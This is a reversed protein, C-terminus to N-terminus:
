RRKPRCQRPSRTFNGDSALAVNGKMVDAFTAGNLRYRTMSTRFGMICFPCKTWALYERLDENPSLTTSNNYVYSNLGRWEWFDNEVLGDKGPKRFRYAKFGYLLINYEDRTLKVPAASFDFLGEKAFHAITAKPMVRNLRLSTMNPDLPSCRKDIWKEFPFSQIHGYGRCHPCANRYLNFAFEAPAIGDVLRAKLSFLRTGLYSFTGAARRQNEAPVAVVGGGKVFAEDFSSARVLMKWPDDRHVIESHRHEAMVAAVVSAPVREYRELYSVFPNFFYTMGPDIAQEMERRSRFLRFHPDNIDLHFHAAFQTEWAFNKQDLYFPHLLAFRKAEGTREAISAPTPGASDPLARRHALTGAAEFVEAHDLSPFTREGWYGATITQQTKEGPARGLDIVYDCRYILAPNHEILVVTCNGLYTEFAEHLRLVAQDDLGRSPEDLIVTAQKDTLAASHSLIFRALKLRQLEGGSLTATARGLTIHSLSLADFIERVKSMFGLGGSTDIRAIDSNLLEVISKGEARALAVEPRYRSGFCVGCVRTGDSGRGECAPCAGRANFSFDSETMHPANAKAYAKRIEDFVQLYTGVISASSKGPPKSDLREVRAGAGVLTDYLMGFVLTSKGAGSSGVVVTMRGRPIRLSTIRVNRRPKVAVTIFASKRQTTVARAAQWPMLRSTSEPKILSGGDPGAGPGITLVRDAIQRYLVNHEVVIVCNGRRKLELIAELVALNDRYQLNASPEDIVVLRGSEGSTLVDFLKLRQVEGSSMAATSRDLGIHGIALNDLTRLRKELRKADDPDFPLVSSELLLGHASLRLYHDFPQGNIRVARTQYGYGTGECEPCESEALYARAHEDSQNALLKGTLLDVVKAHEDARLEGFSKNTDIGRKRILTSLGSPLFKFGVYRGAKTLPVNLFRESLPTTKDIVEDYAAAIHKGAGACASCRGSLSSAASKSFLTATPKRFLTGDPLHFFYEDFNLDVGEGFLLIGSRALDAIMLDDACDDVAVSIEFNALSTKPLKGLAVERVTGRREDRLFVTGLRHKGVRLRVDATSVDAYTWLVAYLRAEPHFKGAFQRIEALSPKEIHVGRHVIQGKEVFLKRLEGKIGTRTGFTSSETQLLARQSVATCAPLQTANRFHPRVAYVYLDDTKRRMAEQRKAEAAVVDTVLTSKGSGSVGTVLIVEGGINGHFDLDKLNNQTIGLISFDHTHLKKTM